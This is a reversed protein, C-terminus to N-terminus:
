AGVSKLFESVRRFLHPQIEPYTLDEPLSGFLRTEGIESDPLPDMQSVEAFYLRGYSEGGSSAVRYDCVPTIFFEIAGTEEILERAATANVGEGAERRGGPIEWTSRRKHRVLVWAGSSRAVIVAYRYQDDPVHGVEHLTVQLM